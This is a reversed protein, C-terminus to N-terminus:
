RRRHPLMGSAEGVLGLDQKVGLGFDSLTQVIDDPNMRLAIRAMGINSSYKIIDAINGSAM